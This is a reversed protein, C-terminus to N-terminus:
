GCQRESEARAALARLVPSRESLRKRLDSVTEALPPSAPLSDPLLVTESPDRGMLRNLAATEVAQGNDIQGLQDKVNRLRVETNLLDNRAVLGQDYLDKAERLHDELSTVRQQVVRRQAKLVLIRLYASLADIQARSSEARGRM